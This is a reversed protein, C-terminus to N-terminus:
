LYNAGGYSYLPRRANSSVGDRIHSFLAVLMIDFMNNYYGYSTLIDNISIMIM